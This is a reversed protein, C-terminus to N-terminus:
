MAQLAQRQQALRQDLVAQGSVGRRGDTCCPVNGVWRTMVPLRVVSGASASAALSLAGVRMMTAVDDLQTFLEAPELGFQVALLRMAGREFRRILQASRPSAAESSARV